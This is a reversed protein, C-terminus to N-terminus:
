RPRKALATMATVAAFHHKTRVYSTPGSRLSHGSEARVGMRPKPGRAKENIAEGLFGDWIRDVLDKVEPHDSWRHVDIPRSYRPNTIESM